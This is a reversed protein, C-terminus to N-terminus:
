RSNQMTREKTNDCITAVFKNLLREKPQYVVQAEASRSLLTLVVRNQRALPVPIVENM